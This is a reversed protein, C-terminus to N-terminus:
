PAPRLMRRVSEFLIQRFPPYQLLESILKVDFNPKSGAGENRVYSRLSAVFSSLSDVLRDLQELKVRVDSIASKTQELRTPLEDSVFIYELLKGISSMKTQGKLFRNFRGIEAEIKELELEPDLNEESAETREETVQVSTDM